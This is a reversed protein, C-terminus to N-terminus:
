FPKRGYVVFGYCNGFTPELYIESVGESQFVEMIKYISYENMKMLPENWRKRQILNFLLYSYPLHHKLQYVINKPISFNQKTAFQLAALGGPALCGLLAKAIALGPNVDIHQFVINSHVLDIDQAISGAKGVSNCFSVDNIGRKLINKQAEALMKPAIDIGIVRKYHKKLPIVLRAVGCGFDIATNRRGPGFIRGLTDMRSRIEIEGSEFFEDEHESINRCRYKDDTLVAFYPDQESWKKWHNEIM